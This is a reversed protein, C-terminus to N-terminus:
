TFYCMGLDSKSGGWSIEEQSKESLARASMIQSLADHDVIYNAWYIECLQNNTHSIDMGLDVHKYHRKHTAPALGRKAKVRGRMQATLPQEVNQERGGSYRRIIQM